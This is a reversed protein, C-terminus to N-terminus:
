QSPPADAEVLIRFKQGTYDPKETIFERLGISWGAKVLGRGSRQIRDNESAPPHRPDEESHRVNYMGRDDSIEWWCSAMDYLGWANPQKSRVKLPARFGTTGTSNQDKFKEPFGPNSTGVRAAYEWEADSPLRVTKKNKESLIAYFRKVDHFTPNSVPLQPDKVTSPNNGMVAEYIEQTVPIEALYYPKTLTVLHPYEEQYYPWLGYLTGMLFKSPPISICKLTLREDIRLILPEKDSKVFPTDASLMRRPYKLGAPDIKDATISRKGDKEVVAGTVAIARAAHCHHNSGRNKDDKLAPSNPAIDYKLWMDFQELFKVASEADLGKEPFFDNVIRDVEARIEATGDIEFLVMFHDEAKPNTVCVGNCVMSGRLTVEARVFGASGILIAISAALVATNRSLAM